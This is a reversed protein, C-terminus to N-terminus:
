RRKDIQDEEINPIGAQGEGGIRYQELRVLEWSIMQRIHDIIVFHPDSMNKTTLYAAEGNDRLVDCEYVESPIAGTEEGVCLGRHGTRTSV